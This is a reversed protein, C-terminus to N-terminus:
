VHNTFVFGGRKGGLANRKQGARLQINEGKRGILQKIGFRHGGVEAQQQVFVRQFIHIIEIRGNQTEAAAAYSIQHGGPYGTRKPIGFCVCFAVGKRQRM